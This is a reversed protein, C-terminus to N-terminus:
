FPEETYEIYIAPKQLWNVGLASAFEAVWGFRPNSKNTDRQSTFSPAKRFPSADFDWVIPVWNPPISTPSLWVFPPAFNAGNLNKGYADPAPTTGSVVNVMLQGLTTDSLQGTGGKLNAINVPPVLLDNYFNPDEMSWATGNAIANGSAQDGVTSTLQLQLRVLAAAAAIGPHLVMLKRLTFTIEPGGTAVASTLDFGAYNPQVSAGAAINLGLGGVSPLYEFGPLFMGYTRAQNQRLTSTGLEPIPEDFDQSYRLRVGGYLQVSGWPKINGTRFGPCRVVDFADASVMGSGNFGLGSGKPAKDIKIWVVDSLDGNKNSPGSAFKSV